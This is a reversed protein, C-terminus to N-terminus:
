AGRELKFYKTTKGGNIICSEQNKLITKIWSVFDIGFGFKRLIQLLFCHNVSDFAKEIDITVLFGELALTKAIELIDSIVRGSESIFRNKVYATQNSSILYPLVGKIRTSLVKSIIKMDTNLLSIPRWNKIFRKDKDKKGLMKMVAQKQYSSLEQNVFARHISALLPNKIGDWFCEYFKKSQGDNGPSKNNEMSKLSKFVEDESIIGKCSLTQENTLKPLPINELYAEIIDTQFQVKRSFLSQYFSFTQKNIENQDTIEDQNIIVSYIQSHIVRHKQLNLFFSNASKKCHEYRYCTSRIKIGKAKKKKTSKM